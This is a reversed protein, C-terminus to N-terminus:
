DRWRLAWNGKAFSPEVVLGNMIAECKRRVELGSQHIGKEAESRSSREKSCQARDDVNPPNELLGFVVGRRAARRVMEREDAQRQGELRRQHQITIGPQRDCTMNVSEKNKSHQSEPMRDMSHLDPDIVKGCLENGEQKEIVDRDTTERSGLSTQSKNGVLTEESVSTRDFVVREIDDCTVIARRDGKVLRINAAAKDVDSAIKANLLSM